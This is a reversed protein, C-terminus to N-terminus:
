ACHLLTKDAARYMVETRCAYKPGGRIIESGQHLIDHQFVLIDGSSTPPDLCLNCVLSRCKNNKCNPHIFRTSGGVYDTTNTYIQVTLIGRPRHFFPTDREPRVFYGDYHQRFYQGKTYKLCRFRENLGNLTLKIGHQQKCLEVNIPARSCRKTDWTQPLFKRIREFISKAFEEDDFISRVGNRTVRDQELQTSFGRSESSDIIYKRESATLVNKLVIAFAKRERDKKDPLQPSLDICRIERGTTEKEQDRTAMGRRNSSNGGM